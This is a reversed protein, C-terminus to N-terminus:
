LLKEKVDEKLFTNEVKFENRIDEELKRVKKIPFDQETLSGVTDVSGSTVGLAKFADKTLKIYQDFTPKAIKSSSAHCFANRLLRLQDIAMAFTEANNGSPSSVNAHFTGHPLKHSKVCLDSPRGPTKPFLPVNAFYRLSCPFLPVNALKQSCPFLIRIIVNRFCESLTHSCPFM